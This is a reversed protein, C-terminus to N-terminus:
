LENDERFFRLLMKLNNVDERVNPVCQELMDDARKYLGDVLSVLSDYPYVSELDPVIHLFYAMGKEIDSLAGYIQEECFQSIQIQKLLEKKSGKFNKPSIDKCTSYSNEFYIIMQEIKALNNKKSFMRLYKIVPILDAICAILNNM